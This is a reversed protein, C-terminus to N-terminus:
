VIGPIQFNIFGHGLRAELEDGYTLLDDNGSHYSAKIWADSRAATSIRIEDLDGTFWKGATAQDYSIYLNANVPTINAITSADGKAGEQVGNVFVQIGDAESKDARGAIHFWAGTDLDTTGVGAADNNDTDELRLHAVVDGNIKLLNLMYGSHGGGGAQDNRRSVVRQTADTSSKVWAQITFDNVGIGIVAGFGALEGGDSNMGLGIKGTATDLTHTSSDIDHDTSDVLQANDGSNMHWVAEHSGDWVETRSGADAVNSNNAHDAGYYIYMSMDADITWGDLSVHLVANENADDWQEIEVYLETTGDAKTVAIKFRNADSGLEDFICSVDKNGVGALGSEIIIAIPFWTVSAGIGNTYDIAIEIRKGWGHLWAM